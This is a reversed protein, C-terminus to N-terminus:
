LSPFSKTRKKGPKEKGGGVLSIFNHFCRDFYNLNVLALAKVDSENRSFFTKLKYFVDSTGSETQYPECNAEVKGLIYM